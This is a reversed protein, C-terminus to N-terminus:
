SQCSLGEWGRSDWGGAKTGGSIGWIAKREWPWRGPLSMLVLWPTRGCPVELGPVHSEAPRKPEGWLPKLATYWGPTRSVLSLAPLPLLGETISPGPCFTLSPRAVWIPGGRWCSADM